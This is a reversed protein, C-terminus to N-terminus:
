LTQQKYELFLREFSVQILDINYKNTRQADIVHSLSMLPKIRNCEPFTCTKCKTLTLKRNNKQDSFFKDINKISSLGSVHHTKSNSIIVDALSSLKDLICQTADFENQCIVSGNVIGVTDLNMSELMETKSNNLLSRVTEKLKGSNIPKSIWGSALAKRVDEKMVLSTESSIVLIPVELSSAKLRIKRTLDLGNMHPMHLDTLVMNPRVSHFMKLASLGDSATHVLYGASSMTLAIIDRTVSCDDVVLLTEKM